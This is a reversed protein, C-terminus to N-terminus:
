FNETTESTFKGQPPNIKFLEENKKKLKCSRLTSVLLAPMSSPDLTKQAEGGEEGKLWLCLNWSEYGKLNVLM